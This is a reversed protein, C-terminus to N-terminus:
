SQDAVVILSYAVNYTRGNSMKVKAMKPNLKQITGVLHSVRVDDVKVQMGVSLSHKKTNRAQQKKHNIADVVMSNLILLQSVEETLLDHYTIKTIDMIMRIPNNNQKSMLFILRIYKEHL